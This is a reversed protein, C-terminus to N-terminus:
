EFRSNSSSVEIGRNLGVGISKNLLGVVIFHQINLGSGMEKLQARLSIQILNVSGQNIAIRKGFLNLSCYAM